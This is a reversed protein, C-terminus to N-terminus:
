APNIGLLPVIPDYSVLHEAKNSSPLCKELSALGISVGVLLKHANQSSWMKALLQFAPMSLQMGILQNKAVGRATTWWAARDM